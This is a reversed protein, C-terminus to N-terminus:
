AGGCGGESCDLEGDGTVGKLSGSGDECVRSRVGGLGGEGDEGEEGLSGLGLVGGLERAGLGIGGIAFVFVGVM